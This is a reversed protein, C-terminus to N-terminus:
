WNCLLERMKRFTPTPLQKTLIDARQEETPIKEVTVRNPRLHSRFWHYRIAYHKSRPTIRGPELNALTLAGVNDEWVTTKFTALESENIGISTGVIRLLELLPLVSRMAMSLANYEAEMTSTAIDSQLKSVWIIPCNAICIAFGTRSKVCSPDQKDEYPWLGAFDADVYCDVQLLNPTPRLVLGEDSTGNLYRGIRLLAEEHSKRPAHTYRACQSVAYQLDPRSHGTLYILMGIVSAYNFRGEAPDGDKDAILPQRLAPTLVRPLDQVGLANIIRQTLGKQTLKITADAPNRTIHVGLFGAVDNEEELEVDERQLKELLEDIYEQKPSFLLTDDVYVLLIVRDSIFLCPDIAEQSQMGNRELVEKLYLFFNRPSQKLGYLSRKLKLVKGAQRFGRPMDVYVGSRQKEAPTLNAWNPDKDIPAHLFAATYDVQRTALNLIVSLVLLLRVTTWNVVPAYTDFFDVGEVQRDGRACFRAKLKRVAGDPYRKCRFAWTSPLVKMWSERAVVDWADKQQELTHIEKRCAEWYGDKDPGRMATDWDLTDEYDARAALALPHMEEQHGNSDCHANLVQQMARM